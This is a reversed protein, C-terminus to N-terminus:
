GGYWQSRLAKLQQSEKAQAALLLTAMRKVTPNTGRRLEVAVISATGKNQALMQTIFGQDFSQGGAPTTSIASAATLKKSTLLAVPVGSKQFDKESAQLQRIQLLRASTITAALTKLQPHKAKQAAQSALTIAAADRPLSTLVFWNDVGSASGSATKVVKKANASNQKSTIAGPRVATNAQPTTSGSKNSSGCGALALACVPAVALLTLGRRAARHTIHSLQVNTM